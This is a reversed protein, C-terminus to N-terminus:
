KRSAIWGHICPRILTLHPLGLVPRAAERPGEFGGPQPLLASCRERHWGLSFVNTCLATVGNGSLPAALQPAAGGDRSVAHAIDCPFTSSTGRPAKATRARSSPRTTTESM